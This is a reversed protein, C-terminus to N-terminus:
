FSVELATAVEWFDYDLGPRNSDRKGARGALSLKVNRLAEYDIAAGAASVDDKRTKLDSIVLAPDGEHDRKQYSGEVSVTLKATASWNLKASVAKEDVYTAIDEQVADLDRWAALELQTKGTVQWAWNLRGTVGDFDRESVEDYDRWEYALRGQLLSEGTVQWRAATGLATDRYSNDVPVLSDPDIDRNPFDAEALRAWLGARNRARSVYDLGLEGFVRSRDLRKRQEASHDFDAWGGSAMAQWRPHWQYAAQAEAGQRTIMDKRRVRQEAFSALKRVYKYQINGDWQRGARWQWQALGKGATHDLESFRKYDNRDVNGSLLLRQRSVPVDVDFGAGATRIYDSRKTTGLQALAEEDDEFRFLNSDHTVGASVYPVFADPPEAALADTVASVVALLPVLLCRAHM